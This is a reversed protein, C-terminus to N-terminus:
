ADEKIKNRIYQKAQDANMDMVVSLESILLKEADRLFNEDCLHVKRGAASQRSKHQHLSRIMQVLKKRDGSCILERYMQKRRNEDPIWAAAEVRWLMDMEESSLM